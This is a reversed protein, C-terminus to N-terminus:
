RSSKLRVTPRRTMTLTKYCNLICLSVTIFYVRKVRRSAFFLLMWIRISYMAARMAKPTKPEQRSPEAIAMAVQIM